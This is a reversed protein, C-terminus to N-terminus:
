QSFQSDEILEILQGSALLLFSVLRNQFAIGPKPPSVVRARGAVLRETTLGIDRCTFGHHYIKIGRKLHSHIPSTEDLPELLEVRMPGLTLFQARVCQLPDDYVPGEARFGLLEYALLDKALDRTAVGDHHFRLDDVM